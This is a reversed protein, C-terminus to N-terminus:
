DNGSDHYKYKDYYRQVVYRNVSNKYSTISCTIENEGNRSVHIVHTEGDFYPSWCPMRLCDSQNDESILLPFQIHGNPSLHMVTFFSIGTEGNKMRDLSESALVLMMERLREAAHGANILAELFGNGCRRETEADLASGCINDVFRNPYIDISEYLCQMFFIKLHDRTKDYWFEFKTAAIPQYDSINLLHASDGNYIPIKYRVDYSSAGVSNSWSLRSAKEEKKAATLLDYAFAPNQQYTECLTDLGYQGTQQSAYHFCWNSEVSFRKVAGDLLSQITFVLREPMCGEFIRPLSKTLYKQKTKTNKNRNIKKDAKM